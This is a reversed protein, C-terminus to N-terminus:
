GSKHGQWLSVWPFPANDPFGPFCPVFEFMLSVAGGDERFSSGPGRVVSRTRVQVSIVQEQDRTHKKFRVKVKDAPQGQTNGLQTGNTFFAVDGRTLCHVSHVVGPGAAFM